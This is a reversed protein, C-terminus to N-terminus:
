SDRRREAVGSKRRFPRVKTRMMKRRGLVAGLEAVSHRGEGELAHVM